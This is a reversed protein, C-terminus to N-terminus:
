FKKYVYPCWGEMISGWISSTPWFLTMFNASLARGFVLRNLPEDESTVFGLAGSYFDYSGKKIKQVAALHLINTNQFSAEFLFGEKSVQEASQITLFRQVSRCHGSAADRRFSGFISPLIQAGSALDPFSDRKQVEFRGVRGFSQSYVVGKFSEAHWEEIVFISDVQPDFFTMHSLGIHQQKFSRLLFSKEKPNGFFFYSDVALLILGGNHQMPRVNMALAQYVNREEYHVYGRFMGTMELMRQAAQGALAQVKNGPGPLTQVPNPSPKSFDDNRTRKYQCSLNKSHVKFQCQFSDRDHRQCEARDGISNLVLAGHFLEYSGSSFHKVLCWPLDQGKDQESTCLRADKFGINAKIGYGRFKGPTAPKDDVGRVTVLSLLSAYKGCQGLYDGALPSLSREDKASFVDTKDEPNQRTLVIDLNDAVSKIWVKGRLVVSSGQQMLNLHLELDSEDQNFVIESSHARCNITSFFETQYEHTGVNAFVLKLIAAPEGGNPLGNLNKWFVFLHIRLDEQENLHISGRWDGVLEKRVASVTSLVLDAESDGQATLVCSFLFAVFFFLPLFQRMILGLM